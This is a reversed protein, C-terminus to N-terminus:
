VAADDSVEQGLATQALRVLRRNWEDQVADFLALTERYKLYDETISVRTHWMLTQVQELAQGYTMKKEEIQGNMFDATNLGFTARLDHFSFSYRPSNLRRRMEPLLREKIFQRVGQGTKAHRVPASGRARLGRRRREEYLAAGKHSLFLAQEPHDGDIAKQRRSRASPSNAYIHLREYLWRPLHIVGPSGNKTDIGTGPGALLRFDDGIFASPPQAVHRVKITLVSQIRIGSFLSILHILTMQTNGLDALVQLLIRQEAQPLPRLKGGDNIYEKWADLLPKDKLAVDTTTVALIGGFGRANKWSVFRDFDVWPAHAPKLSAESILWRYFRVVTGMRRKAVSSSIEGAEVALKLFGNYRYTPRRLKHVPFVLWEVDQNDLFQRYAALDDAVTAATLMNPDIKGELVDMMWINAELWPSGDSNLVAPYLPFEGLTWRPKRDLREGSTEDVITTTHYVFTDGDECPLCVRTTREGTANAIQTLQLCPLTRRKALSTM